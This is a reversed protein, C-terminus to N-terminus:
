HVCRGPGTPAGSVIVTLRWTGGVTQTLASKIVETNSEEGLMRALPAAAISLTVLDGDVDHVQAGDLLARTRRSSRKVAELM